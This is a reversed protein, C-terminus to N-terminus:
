KDELYTWKYSYDAGVLHYGIDKVTPKELVAWYRQYIPAIAGNDFLVKEAELMQEWRKEPDTLSTTSIEKLLSDYKENSFGSKNNGNGTEFLELFNIPDSFDAGWGSLQIDYDQKDNNDIRVKFPVNRLTIKLGDLNEELQGQMFESSRKANETDDSLFELDLKDVGLEKLGKKWFEQAKKADYKSLDGNEKRFDKDNKPDKALGAPVLGNAPVSGNQLVTDAYAQKDFAMSLAKRINENALPTAKGNREQNFKLFFVSSTPFKKLDPDDQRTQVYEGTLVMRDIQGDDYLNLATSTEKVVDVNIKDLKVTDKDWYTDNKDYEWSLGTGDWAALKFPGNYVLADSNSAYKEGQETVFKENQPYYMALSLLGKFYPVARELQIELTKDDVAKVGLEDPQKEGAIVASANAIVGDMMYSYPAATTPDVLRRWSFVFDGATVPDGNSWKADDRIKFTYTLKDDSIKPEEAAMGLVPNNDLDQRYLGEFVNNMVISGVTDTNMVSDMTPIEASEILNLEQKKAMKGSSDKSASDSAKDSGSGGGCAALVITSTLAIGLLSVLKGKKM